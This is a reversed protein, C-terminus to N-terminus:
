AAPVYMRSSSVKHKTLLQLVMLPHRRWSRRRPSTREEDGEDYGDREEEAEGNNSGKERLLRRACSPHADSRDLVDAGLPDHLEGLHWGVDHGLRWLCPTAGPALGVGRRAPSSSGITSTTRPGSGRRWTRGGRFSCPRVRAAHGRGVPLVRELLRPTPSDSRCQARAEARIPLHTRAALRDTRYPFRSVTSRAMEIRRCPEVYVACPRTVGTVKCSRVDGPRMDSPELDMLALDVFVLAQGSLRHLDHPGLVPIPHVTSFPGRRTRRASCDAKVKLLELRLM